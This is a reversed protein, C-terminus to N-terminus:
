QWDIIDWGNEQSIARLRSSPSVAVPHEALMMMPVDSTHDAYAHTVRYPEDGFLSQALRAVRRVKEEGEVPLGAIEGTYHGDVIEMTTTEAADAGTDALAGELIPPFSASIFVVTDGQEKHARICALAEPRLHARIRERYVDRMFDDYEAASRDCMSSFILERVHTENHPLGTKYRVGWALIRLARRTHMFGRRYLETVMMVPSQGDYVTGDFDFLVLNHIREPM